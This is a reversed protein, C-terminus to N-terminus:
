YILWQKLKKKKILEGGNLGGVHLNKLSAAIENSHNSDNRINHVMSYRYIRDMM